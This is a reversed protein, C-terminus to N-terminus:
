RQEEKQLKNFLEYFEDNKAREIARMAREQAAYSLHLLDKRKKSPDEINSYLMYLVVVDDGNIIAYDTQYPENYSKLFITTLKYPLNANNFNDKEKFLGALFSADKIGLASISSRSLVAFKEEETLALQSKKYAIYNRALDEKTCSANMWEVINKLSILYEQDLSDRLLIKNNEDKFFTTLYQYMALSEAAVEKQKIFPKRYLFRIKGCFYEYACVLQQNRIKKYLEPNIEKTIGCRKLLEKGYGWAFREADMEFPDISWLMTHDKKNDPMFRAYLSVGREGREGDMQYKHRLEHLVEFYITEYSWMLANITDLKIVNHTRAYGSCGSTIEKLVNECPVAFEVDVEPM